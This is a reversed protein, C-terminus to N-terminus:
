LAARRQFRQLPRHRFPRDAPSRPVLDFQSVKAGERLHGAPQAQALPDEPRRIALDACQRLALPHTGRRHSRDSGRNRSAARTDVGYLVANMLPAGDADVPLMCPGIASAGVAKVESADLGSDALLKRCSGSSTAGGTRRPAISPGVRGRCSSGMRGRPARWCTGTSRRRSRREFEYTGIDIGLTANMDPYDDRDLSFGAEIRSIGAVLLTRPGCSRLSRVSRALFAHLPLPLRPRDRRRRQHVLQVYSFDTLVGVQASRQLPLSADRAAHEFLAVLAPHPITGNLTGRGHFSYLSM